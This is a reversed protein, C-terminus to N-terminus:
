DTTAPMALKQQAVIILEALAKALKPSTTQGARFHATAVIGQDQNAATGRNPQIQLIEGPDLKLWACIHGFTTLDPLNGREVRSLTAPSIKVEAAVERIGREGRRERLLEGLQHISLTGM